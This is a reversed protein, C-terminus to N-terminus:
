PMESLRLLLSQLNSGVSALHVRDCLFFPPHILLSHDYNGFMTLKHVYKETVSSSHPLWHRMSTALTLGGRIAEM